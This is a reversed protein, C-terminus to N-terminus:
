PYECVYAKYVAAMDCPSDGWEDVTAVISGTHMYACDGDGEPQPTRGMYGGPYWNTWTVPEGTIWEWSGEVAADTLGIWACGNAGAATLAPDGGIFAYADTHVAGSEAADSFTVLHYGRAACDGEATYWSVLSACYLYLNGTSPDTGMDCDCSGDIDVAGDCDDDVGNCTEVAGPFVDADGDDCDGAVDSYGSPEDCAATTTTSVGYGDLDEDLYWTAADVADDEDVVGDCDDDVGDCYEDAGPWVDPDTDDCDGAVAVFGSPQDCASTTTAADGYGDGDGDAYWTAFSCDPPWDYAIRYKRWRQYASFASTTTVFLSHDTADLYDALAGCPTGWGCGSNDLHLYAVYGVSINMEYEVSTSTPTAWAEVFWPGASTDLNAACRGFTAGSGTTIGLGSHGSTSSLASVCGPGAEFDESVSNGASDEATFDDFIANRSGFQVFAATDWTGIDVSTVWLDDVYLDVTCATDDVGDCDQDIGDGCVEAMGPHVDAAGDDCDADDSVFGTPRACAVATAAPDGYGDGDGDAYWTAADVADDEDVVGDCDTDVGDCYEDAGPWADPDTDDCDSADDTFGSPAACAVATVAPDGYGDGDADAYWTAADAADDEDVAGDCDDDLGNCSETAGPNVTADGDDCDADDAGYGPPCTCASTATSPDGYGDGDGDAYWTAADAADDEDVAGDCDDDLGDCLETAAPNVAARADDCDTADAVWGSPQTCAAAFVLPDGYGDGDADPHWALADLADDEDLTGDCDTDVGDCYEDAGPHTAAAADDCDTADAVFGSPAGCALVSAAPDGFGDGDADAYWTAEGVAGSEDIAGDCDDDLGNCAEAAAPNVAPLSDDCDTADAVFGTPAACATVTTGADGYGDGDADAYWTSADIADDDIEGDCDQDVGDCTETAGPHVEADTDDCDDGGSEEPDYGDGDQDAPDVLFMVSETTLAGASDTATVFVQYNGAPLAGVTFFASGGSDPATPAGSLDPLTGDWTLGIDQIDAEDADRVGIEVIIEDRTSFRENNGPQVFWVEPADNGVVEFSVDDEGSDGDLDKVRLNVSYQGEPLGEALQIWVGEDEIVTDGVFDFGNGSWTYSLDALADREDSVEAAFTIAAGEDLRDGEAPDTIFVEPPKNPIPNGTFDVCGALTGLVLVFAQRFM